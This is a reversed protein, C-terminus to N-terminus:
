NCLYCYTPEGLPLPGSMYCSGLASQWCRRCNPQRYSHSHPLYWTIFSKYQYYLHWTGNSDLFCGNPDNMFKRPPSFHVQPRLAGTYNGPVPADTPVGADFTTSTASPMSSNTTAQAAAVVAFVLASLMMIRSMYFPQEQKSKAAEVFIRSGYVQPWDKKHLGMVRTNFEIASPGIM